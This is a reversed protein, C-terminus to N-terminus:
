GSIFYLIGLFLNKHPMFNKEKYYKYLYLMRYCPFARVMIFHKYAFLIIVIHELFCAFLYFLKFINVQFAYFKRSTHSYSIEFLVKLLEFSM